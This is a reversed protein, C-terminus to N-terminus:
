RRTVCVSLITTEGKMYKVMYNVMYNVMYKVIYIDHIKDRVRVRITAKHTAVLTPLFLSARAWYKKNELFM